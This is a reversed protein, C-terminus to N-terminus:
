GLTFNKDISRVWDLNEPTSALHESIIREALQDPDLGLRDARKILGVYTKQQLKLQYKM